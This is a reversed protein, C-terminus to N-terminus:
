SPSIEFLVHELGKREFDRVYSMGIKEMVRRSAVNSPMTFSVIRKLGAVDFGWELAALAAEPAFGEGWREPDVSWGVEVVPEGEVDTSNLGAQAVLAGSEHERWWWHGVGGTALMTGYRILMERVQPLVRPGGLEGPWHWEAVRPDGFQRLAADLHAAEDPLEAVLRNTPGPLPRESVLPWTGGGTSRRNTKQIPTPSSTM